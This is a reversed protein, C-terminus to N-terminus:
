LTVPHTSKQVDATCTDTETQRFAALATRPHARSQMNAVEWDYYTNSQTCQSLRGQIRRKNAPLVVPKRDGDRTTPSRKKRQEETKNSRKEKPARMEEGRLQPPRSSKVLSLDGRFQQEYTLM